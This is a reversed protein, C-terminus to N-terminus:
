PGGFFSGFADLMPRAAKKFLIFLMDIALGAALLTQAQEPLELVAALMTGVVGAAFVGAIRLPECDPVPDVGALAHNDHDLLEGVKGEEYREAVTVPIRTMEKM